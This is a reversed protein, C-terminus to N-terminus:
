GGDFTVLVTERITIREVTGEHEKVCIQDGAVFPQRFLLLIGALLNELIDQFAFGIAVSFFGLGALLDVPEGVPIDGRAGPVRGHGDRGLWGVEGDGHRLETHAEPTPSPRTRSPDLPGRAVRSRGGGVAIGVRPLADLTTQWISSASDTVEETSEVALM